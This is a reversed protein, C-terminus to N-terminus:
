SRLRGVKTTSPSSLTHKMQKRRLAETALEDVVDEADFAVDQLDGLWLKVSRTTIQKEEADELSANLKLLLNQWKNLEAVLQEERSFKNFDPSLLTECLSRFCASLLADTVGSVIIEMQPFFDGRIWASPEQTLIQLGIQCLMM